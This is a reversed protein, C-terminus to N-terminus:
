RLRYVKMANDYYIKRLVEEPLDMGRVMVPQGADADDIPSIFEEAGEWLRQQVYYRSVFYAQDGGHHTVLDTGFLIREAHEIIFQRAEDRKASLERAIWKTASTDLYLNPFRALLEALYPLEEPNGGFHAAVFNIGPYAALAGTLQRYNDRKSLFKREDSYCRQFWIDPDAIHVLAALKLEVMGEFIPRLREDDLYLGQKYNFEPKFWFKMAVTGQAKGQKMITINKERLAATDNLQSYDPWLAFCLFNGHRQRLPLMEELSSVAMAKKMGYSQAIKVLLDASKSDTLHVHADIVPLTFKRRPPNSFDIKNM